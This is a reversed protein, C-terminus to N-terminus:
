NEKVTPHVCQDIRKQWRFAETDMKRRMRKEEVWADAVYRISYFAAVSAIFVSVVIGACIAEM